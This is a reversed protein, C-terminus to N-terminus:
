SLSSSGSYIPMWIMLPSRKERCTYSVACFYLKRKCSAYLFPDAARPQGQHLLGKKCDHRQTNAEAAAAASPAPPLPLPTGEWHPKGCNRWCAAANRNQCPYEVLGGVPNLIAGGKENVADGHLVFVAVGRCLPCLQVPQQIILGQLIGLHHQSPPHPMTKREAAVM